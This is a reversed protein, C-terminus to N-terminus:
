FRSQHIYGEKGNYKIKYFGQEDDLIEVKELSNVKFVVESTTNAEKRVNAYGDKDLVYDYIHDNGSNGNIDFDSIKFLNYVKAYEQIYKLGWYNNKKFFLRIEPHEIFYLDVYGGFPYDSWIGTADNKRISCQANLLYCLAKYYEDKPLEYQEFNNVPLYELLNPSLQEMKLLMGYRFPQKRPIGMSTDPYNFLLYCIANRDEDAQDFAKKLLPDSKIYGSMTIYELVIPSSFFDYDTPINQMIMKNYEITADVHIADLTADEHLEMLPLFFRESIIADANGGITYIVSNSNTDIDEHAIELIKNRFEEHTPFKYGRKKLSDVMQPVALKYYKELSASTNNKLTIIENNNMISDANNESNNDKNEQNCSFLLIAIGILYMTRTVM